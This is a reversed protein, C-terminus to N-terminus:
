CGNKVTVFKTKTYYASLKTLVNEISDPQEFVSIDKSALTRRAGGGIKVAVVAACDSLSAACSLLGDSTHGGGSECLPKVERKEVLTWGVADVDYIHFSLARGFHENVMKGDTTAVAVRHIKTLDPM